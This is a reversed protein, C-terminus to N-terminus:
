LRFRPEDADDPEDAPLSLVPEQRGGGLPPTTEVPQLLSRIEDRLADPGPWDKPSLHLVPLGATEIQELLRHRHRGDTQSLSDDMLAVVLRVRLDKPSCLVFDLKEGFLDQWAADRHAKKLTPSLELVESMQVAPFVRLTHGAAQELLTLATAAEPGFMVKQVYAQGPKGRWLRRLLSFLTLLVLLCVLGLMLWDLLSVPLWDIM